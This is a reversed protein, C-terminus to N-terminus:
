HNTNGLGHENGCVPCMTPAVTNDVKHVVPKLSHIFAFIAKLDDDNLNRYTGWPM